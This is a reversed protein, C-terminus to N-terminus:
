VINVVKATAKVKKYDPLKKIATVQIVDDDTDKVTIVSTSDQVRTQSLIKIEL